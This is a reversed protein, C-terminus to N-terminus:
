PTPKVVLAFVPIVLRPRQPHDTTVILETRALTLPPEGSYSTVIRAAPAPAASSDGNAAPTQAPPQAPDQAPPEVRASFRPDACELSVIRVPQGRAEFLELVLERREGEPVPGFALTAPTVVLAPVIRGVVPIHLAPAGDLRVTVRANLSGAPASEGISLTIKHVIDGTPGAVAGTPNAAAGSPGAVARPASVTLWDAAPSVSARTPSLEDFPAWAESLPRNTEVSLAQAVRWGPAFTVTLEAAEGQVLDDLEFRPPTAVIRPLIHARLAMTTTRGDDTVVHISKTIDGSLTTTDLLVDIEVSGGAPIETQRAVATTCTDCTIAIKTISLEREALGDVSFHFPLVAGRPLVGFDHTQEAPNTPTTQRVTVPAPTPQAHAPAPLLAARQTVPTGPGFTLLAGLLALPTLNLM